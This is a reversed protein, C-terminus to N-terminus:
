EDDSRMKAGCNPCYFYSSLDRRDRTHFGCNGCEDKAKWNVGLGSSVWRGHKVPEVEITPEEDLASKISLAGLRVLRKDFADADILRM